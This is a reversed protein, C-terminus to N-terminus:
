SYHDPPLLARWRDPTDLRPDPDAGLIELGRARVTELQANDWGFQDAAAMLARMDLVSLQRGPGFPAIGLETCLATLADVPMTAVRASDALMSDIMPIQLGCNAALETRNAARAWAFQLQQTLLAFRLRKSARRRPGDCIARRQHQLFYGVKTGLLSFDEGYPQVTVAAPIGAIQRSISDGSYLYLIPMAARAAWEIEQGVGASAARAAIVILADSDLLETLNRQYVEHPSLGDGDGWPASHEIPAYVSVLWGEGNIRDGLTMQDIRHKVNDVHSQMALRQDRDLNTLPCALYIRPDEAPPGVLGPDLPELQEDDEITM